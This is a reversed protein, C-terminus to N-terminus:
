KVHKEIAEKIMREVKNINATDCYYVTVPMKSPIKVTVQACNSDGTLSVGKPLTSCSAFLIAIASLTLLQKM